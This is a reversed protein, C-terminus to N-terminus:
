SEKCEAIELEQGSSNLGAVSDRQEQKIRQLFLGQQSFHDLDVALEELDKAIRHLGSFPILNQASLTQQSEHVAKQIMKFKEEHYMHNAALKVLKNYKNKWVPYSYRMEVGRSTTNKCVAAIKKSGDQSKAPVCLVEAYMMLCCAAYGLFIKIQM